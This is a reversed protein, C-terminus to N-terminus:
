YVWDEGTGNRYAVLSANFAEAWSAFNPDMEELKQAEAPDIKPGLHYVNWGYDEGRDALARATEYLADRSLTPTLM